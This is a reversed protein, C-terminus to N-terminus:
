KEKKKQLGYFYVVLLIACLVFNLITKVSFENSVTKRADFLYIGLQFALMFIPALMMFRYRKGKSNIFAVIWGSLAVVFLSCAWLAVRLSSFGSFGEMGKFLDFDHIYPLFSIVMIGIAVLFDKFIGKKLKM